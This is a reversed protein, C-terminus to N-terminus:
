DGFLCVRELGLWGDACRVGCRLVLEPCFLCVLVAM